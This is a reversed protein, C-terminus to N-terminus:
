NVSITKEGIMLNVNDDIADMGDLTYVIPVLVTFPKPFCIEKASACLSTKFAIALKQETQSNHISPATVNVVFARATSDDTATDGDSSIKQIVGSSRELQWQENPVNLQWKQPADATFKIDPETKLNFELRIKAGTPQIKFTESLTIVQDDSKRTSKADNVDGVNFQLRLPIATSTNLDVIVISHNNTDCVYLRSNCPSLCLGGPENFTLPTGDANKFHCTTAKSTALDVKKIKHNYTDAM